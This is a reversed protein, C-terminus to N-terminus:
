WKFSSYLLTVKFGLGGAWACVLDGCCRPIGMCDQGEEKCNLIRLEGTDHTDLVTVRNPMQHM